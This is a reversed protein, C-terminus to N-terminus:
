SSVGWIGGNDGPQGTLVDAKLCAGYAEPVPFIGFQVHRLRPCQFPATADFRKLEM